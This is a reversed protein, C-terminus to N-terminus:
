GFIDRPSTRARKTPKRRTASASAKRKKATRKTRSAKRKKTSRRSSRSRGRGTQAYRQARQIAQMKAANAGELARAKAAQKVSKGALVDGLLNVGSTLAINGLAKAGSKIMPKAIKGLSRFLGGLGYGTQPQVIDCYVYISTIIQLEAVNPSEQSKLIKIDDGGFGLIRAMQPRFLIYHKPALTVKVKHTRLNYSLVVNNNKLEKKMAANIAKILEPVSTYYGYDVKASTWFTKGGDTSYYIHNQHQRKELTYWTNPYSISYLGVEWESNLDFTQPFKVHYSGIKNDPFVDMSANSPLTLYFHAGSM